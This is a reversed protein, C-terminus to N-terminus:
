PNLTYDHMNYSLFYVIEEVCIGFVSMKENM